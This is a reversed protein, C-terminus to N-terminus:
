IRVALSKRECAPAEIASAPSTLTTLVSYDPFDRNILSVFSLEAEVDSRANQISHVQKIINLDSKLQLVASVFYIQLSQKGQQDGLDAKAQMSCTLVASFAFLLAVSRAMKTVSSKINFTM